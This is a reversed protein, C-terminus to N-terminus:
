CARASEPTVGGPGGFLPLTVRGSVPGGEAAGVREKRRAGMRTLLGSGLVFIALPVFGAVGFGASLILAVVLGAERSEKRAMALFVQGLGVPKASPQAPAPAGGSVGEPAQTMTM